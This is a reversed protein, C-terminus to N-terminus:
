NENPKELEFYEWNRGNWVVDFGSKAPLPEQETVHSPIFGLQEYLSMSIDERAHSYRGFEDAFYIM